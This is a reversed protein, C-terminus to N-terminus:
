SSPLWISWVSAATACFIGGGVFALDFRLRRFSGFSDATYSSYGMINDSQAYPNGWRDKKALESTIWEGAEVETLKPFGPETGALMRDRKARLKAMHKERHSYQKAPEYVKWLLHGLGYLPLAGGLVYLLTILM